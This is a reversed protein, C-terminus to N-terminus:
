DWKDGAEGRSLKTSLSVVVIVIGISYSNTVSRDFQDATNQDM